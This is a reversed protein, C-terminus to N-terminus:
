RNYNIVDLGYFYFKGNLFLNTVYFNLLLVVYNLVECLGYLVFYCTNRHLISRFHQVYKEVTEKKSFEEMLGGELVHWIKNPILFSVAQILLVISVWQFYSLLIPITFPYLEFHLVSVQYYTIDPADDESDIGDMDVICKFHGQLKKDIYSTGHIWCYDTALDSDIDKFACKIPKVIHQYLSGLTSGLLFLIFSGKYFLKFIFNDINIPELKLFQIVDALIQFVM